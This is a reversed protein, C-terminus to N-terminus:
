VLYSFLELYVIYGRRVEIEKVVFYFYYWMEQRQLYLINSEDYWIFLIRKGIFYFQSYSGVIVISSEM